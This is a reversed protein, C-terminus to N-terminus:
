VLSLAECDAVDHMAQGSFASEGNGPTGQRHLAPKAAASSSPVIQVAQAGPVNLRERLLRMSGM